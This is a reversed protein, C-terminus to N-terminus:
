EIGEPVPMLKAYQPPTQRSLKEWYQRMFHETMRLLPNHEPTGADDTSKWRGLDGTSLALPELARAVAYLKIPERAWRPVGVVSDDDVIDPYHAVYHVTVTIGSRPIQTFSIKGSPWLVYARPRSTTTRSSSSWLSGPWYGIKPIWKNGEWQVAYVGASQVDVLDDPLDYQYTSGDGEYETDTAVGTHDAAFAVLADNVCDILLDDSYKAGTTDRLKRTIQPKLDSWTFDAM